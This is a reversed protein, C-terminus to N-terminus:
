GLRVDQWIPNAAHFADIHMHGLGIRYAIGDEWEVLLVHYCNLFKQEFKGTDYRHFYLDWKRTPGCDQPPVSINDLLTEDLDLPDNVPFLIEQRSIGTTSTFRSLAILGINRESPPRNKLSVDLRITGAKHKTSDYVIAELWRWSSHREPGLRMGAPDGEDLYSKTDIPLCFGQFTLITSGQIPSMSNGEDQGLAVPHPFYLDPKSPHVYVFQPYRLDPRPNLCKWGLERWNACRFEQSSLLREPGNATRCKWLISPITLDTISHYQVGHDWGAWSWSPTPLGPINRRHEGKWYEITDDREKEFASRSLERYYRESSFPSNTTWLLAEDLTAAPLNFFHTSPTGRSLIELVGSFASLIDNEHTLTRRSYAHVLSRYDSWPSRSEHSLRIISKTSPQLKWTKEQPPLHANLEEFYMAHRCIFQLQKETVILLRSSMIMEQFTWGRSSWPSFDVSELSNEFSLDRASALEM